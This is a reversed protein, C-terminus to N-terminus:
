RRYALNIFEEVSNVTNNNLVEKTKKVAVSKKTGLAQLAMVCDDYLLHKRPESPAVKTPESITGITIMDWDDASLRKPAKPRPHIIHSVLFILFAITLILTFFAGQSEPPQGTMALLM